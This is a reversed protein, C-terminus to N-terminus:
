GAFPPHTWSEPDSVPVVDLHSTLLVPALAPDSGPWTYLLSAAGIKERRLVRHAQPYTAELWTHLALFPAVEFADKSEHSITQFAIAEALHREPSSEEAGAQAPAALLIGLTCALSIRTRSM